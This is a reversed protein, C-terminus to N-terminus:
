YGRRRRAEGWGSRCSGPLTAGKIIWCDRARPLTLAHPPASHSQEAGQTAYWNPLLRGGGGWSYGRPAVLCVDVVVSAIGAGLLRHM